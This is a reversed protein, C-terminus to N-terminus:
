RILTVNGKKFFKMQGVCTAELYYVFVGPDAQMGKFTGDWGVLQDTTEFLKEGWRNYITFFLEDINNGRVYLVDNEGDGNPTFANPIFIYPEECLFDLVFVTVSDTLSCGYADTVTVWYTVTQQPSAMINPGTTGSLGYSPHWSYTVNNLSPLAMLDSIAGIVITDPQASAQLSVSSLSSVFIRATDSASCGFNNSVTVVYIISQQANVLPSSTNSGSVINTTPQWSYNLPDTSTTSAFLNITDPSCLVVDNTNVNVPHFNVTVSRIESCNNSGVQVYYTTSQNPSVLISSEQPSSNLTDTFSPNSSWHFFPSTGNSGSYLTISSYSCLTTDQSVWLQLNEVYVWQYITDTCFGNTIILQYQTTSDSFAIPNSATIDSLGISPSWTYSINPDNVPMLGIQVSETGCKSLPPLSYTTDKLIVLQRIITDSYNCAETDTVILSIWYTGSETYTYSPNFDTSINNNGFDWYYQANAGAQSNNIVNVTYPACGVPPLVFDAIAIPLDFDFKFVGNNCRGGSTSNNTVSAAGPNPHIPFDQRGGCGACVSQYVKGKRDFRSTGGDVHEASQGGGFFSGYIIGSADIEMVMIYFDSGDTTFQFANSTVPMGTTLGANNFLSGQQNTSGGWGSLYIKNCVDVMFATPSIQPSGNGVGFVTSFCLSDLSPSLKSVFQGSNPTNYPANHILTSGQAETQGFIYVFDLNDAEVFYSQDYASSGYYTSALIQQGNSSIKTIFGDSRGGRYTTHLASSTTSFNQSSTGGTVYLNDKSDLALSYIADHGSGGLYSSWIINTLNNDMKVIIGDLPGGGNAPQFANPTVPFNTSRTCSVIYVNNNQDIDIEGRVEDAYNYRLLNQNATTSTFNVGDNGSGGLYTSAMLQAGNNSLRSVVIDSGNSFNISLGTLNLAPGGNFTKDYANLSTPYNSSGSTGYVFLEDNSNVVMSHPMEDGSGGLFTSYVRFTGTTDYKTIAIDTSGGNFSLDYAGTTTPYNSGFVTSGSYLFGKSDYTATYGFNDSVSGSYTSFVLVPDIILEYQNNYGLPFDFSLISGTLKYNCIVNQERGNIIQYAYPKQEIIENVSTKIVLHGDKLYIGDIGEYQASIINPSAGPKVILDYKMSNAHSYINMDIGKYLNKYEIQGYLQVHSAWKSPNNGIFYNYYEAKAKSSNIVPLSSANIFKVKYAHARVSSIEKKEHNHGKWNSFDESHYFNFTFLNNELYVQGGPIDAKFKINGNWQGKNEIYFINGSAAHTEHANLYSCTFFLLIFTLILVRM